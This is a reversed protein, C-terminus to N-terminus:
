ELTVQSSYYPPTISSTIPQEWWGDIIERVIKVTVHTVTYRTSTELDKLVDTSSLAASMSSEISKEGWENLVEAGTKQKLGTAERTVMDTAICTSAALITSVTIATVAKEAITMATITATGGTAVAVVGSMSGAIFGTGLAIGFERANFNKKHTAWYYGGNITAGILGMSVVFWFINGDPDIYKMPNNRCYSYRNLSQPDSLDGFVADRTTFRGTAPDYYRAGFYYLGTPNEQKGTYRFEESGEEGMELAFTTSYLITLSNHKFRYNIYFSIKYPRTLWWFSKPYSTPTSFKDGMSEVYIKAINPLYEKLVEDQM